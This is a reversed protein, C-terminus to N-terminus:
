RERAILASDDALRVRHSDARGLADHRDTPLAPAQRRVAGDHEALQELARRVASRETTGARTVARALLHVQEYARAVAQPAVIAGADGAAYRALYRRSLEAAAPQPGDVLSFSSLRGPDFRARDDNTTVGWMPCSQAGDATSGTGASGVALLPLGTEAAVAREAVVVEGQVGTLMAVVNARAAFHRLNNAGVAPRGRHDRTILKLPQGLVGGAANIEDIALTAGRRLGTGAVSCDQSLDASLGIVIHEGRGYKHELLEESLALLQPGIVHEFREAIHATATAFRAREAEDLTHISVGAQRITELLLAERRHTQEREWPTLARATDILLQQTSSPLTDFVRASIMFVYGLYGHSSLTLHPQVEHLGMSTIAVLPNEQGEVVGDALAQRLAHFDISIPHAGLARFQEILLRSKMVRVPLGAFDEVRRLPRTATFHKFGNEWFTVGVLDIARLKDLLMRGPEGDLMEYLDERTPFYFPLDAYQMAPVAVSIKATPTLLLDLEGLRAMELMQDDTGLQQAPYLDVRVRGQSREAVQEAFRAAAEHLASDVPINYGFRLVRVSDPAVMPAKPPATEGRPLLSALLVAAILLLLSITATVPNRFM